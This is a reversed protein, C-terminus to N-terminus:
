SNKAEKRSDFFEQLAKIIADTRVVGREDRLCDYLQRRGDEGFILVIVRRYTMTEGNEIDELADLLEVNDFYEPDVSYKFGCSLEGELKKPEAM